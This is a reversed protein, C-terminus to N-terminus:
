SLATHKLTSVNNTKLAAAYFFSRYLFPEFNTPDENNSRYKVGRIELNLFEVSVVVPIFKLYVIEKV